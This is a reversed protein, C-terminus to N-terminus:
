AVACLQRGDREIRSSPLLSAATALGVFTLGLGDEAVLGQARLGSVLEFIRAKSCGLRAALDALNPRGSERITLFLACLADKPGIQAQHTM